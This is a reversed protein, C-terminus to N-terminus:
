KYFYINQSNCLQIGGSFKSAVNHVIIGKIEITEKSIETVEEITEAEPLTLTSVIVEEKEPQELFSHRM